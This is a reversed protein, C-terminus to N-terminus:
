RRKRILSRFIQFSGCSWIMDCSWVSGIYVILGLCISLLFYVIYTNFMYSQLNLLTLTLLLGGFVSPLMAKMFSFLKINLARIAKMGYFLFSVIGSLVVSYSTGSLGWWLTFSVVTAALVLLRFVQGITLLKPKGIALLIPSITTSACRVVGAFCLIKLAPVMPKWQAGFIFFTIPEALMFVMVGFPLAFLLIVQFSKLFGDILRKNDDQLESYVPFSIQILVSSIQTAPLNSVWYAMQYYGLMTTGLIRTVVLDDGQTAGFVLIGAVWIWGGFSFMEGIKEWKFELKPRLPHLVYSFVCNAVASILIGVVLAWVNRWIVACFISAVTGTISSYSMMIFRPRFEIDKQFQIMGPNILARIVISVSVLRIVNASFPSEFFNAILPACAALFISVLFARVIQCSWFSNLYDRIDGKKQILASSFDPTSIVEFGGITLLAIGMLGFDHPAILRALIVRQIFGAIKSIAQLAILWRGARVVRISLDNPTSYFQNGEKPVSYEVTM